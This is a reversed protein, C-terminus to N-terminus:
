ANIIPKEVWIYKMLWEFIEIDCQVTIDIEESENPNLHMEFYKMERLLVEKKCLYNKKMNKREDSVHITVVEQQKSEEAAVIKEKKLPLPSPPKNNM